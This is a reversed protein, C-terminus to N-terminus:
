SQMTGIYVFKLWWLLKKFLVLEEGRLFTWIETVMIYAFSQM